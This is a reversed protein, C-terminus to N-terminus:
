SFWKLLYSTYQRRALDQDSPAEDVARQGASSQDLPLTVEFGQGPQDERGLRNILEPCTGLLTAVSSNSIPSLVADRRTLEFGHRLGCLQRM